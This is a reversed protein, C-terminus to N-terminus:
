VLVSFWLRKGRALAGKVPSMVRSTRSSVQPVSALFWEGAKMTFSGLGKRGGLFLHKVLVLLGKYLIQFDTSLMYIDVVM